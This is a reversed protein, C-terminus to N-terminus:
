LFTEIAELGDGEPAEESDGLDAISEDSDDKDKNTKAKTGGCWPKNSRIQSDEYLLSDIDIQYKKRQWRIINTRGDDIDSSKMTEQMSNLLKDKEMTDDYGYMKKSQEVKKKFGRRM